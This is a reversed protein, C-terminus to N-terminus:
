KDPIGRGPSIPASNNKASDRRRKDWPVIHFVLANVDSRTVIPLVEEVAASAVIDQFRAEIVIAVGLGALVQSTSQASSDSFQMSM